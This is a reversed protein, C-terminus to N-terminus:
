EGVHLTLLCVIRHLKETSQEVDDYTTASVWRVDRIKPDYGLAVGQVNINVHKGDNQNATNVLLNKLRDKIEVCTLMCNDNNIKNIVMLQLLHNNAPISIPPDDDDIKMTIAPYEYFDEINIYTSDKYMIRQLTGPKDNESFLSQISADEAIYDRISAIVAVTNM